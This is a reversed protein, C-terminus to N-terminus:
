AQEVSRLVTRGGTPGALLAAHARVVDGVQLQHPQAFFAEMVSGEAPQLFDDNKGKSENSLVQLKVTSGFGDPEPHISQIRGRVVTQNPQVQM